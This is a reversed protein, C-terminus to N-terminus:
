EAAADTSAQSRDTPRGPFEPRSSVHGVLLRGEVVLPGERDQGAWRVAVATGARLPLGAHRYSPPMGSVALVAAVPRARGPGAARSPRFVARVRLLDGASPPVANGPVAAHMRVAAVGTVDPGDGGAGVATRVEGGEGGLQRGPANLGAALRVAGHEVHERAGARGAQGGEGEPPAEGTDVEIGRERGRLSAASARIRAAVPLVWGAGVLIVL